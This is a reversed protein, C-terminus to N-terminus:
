LKKAQRKFFSVVLPLAAKPLQHGGPHIYSVIETGDVGRDIQEYGQKKAKAVDVKFLQQRAYEIARLQNQFPAVTDQEGAIMYIPKPKVTQLLRGGQASSSCLATLKEGRMVWLVNVFRAGNSHGMVYVRNADIKYEKQVLALAADFYTVDRDQFEGPNKQWGSKKGDPDAVGPVGTLGQMYVVVAESWLRHFNFNRASSHATGGHGHFVFLVPAGTKTAPTSNQYIVAKRTEDGVVFTKVEPESPISLLVILLSFLHVM